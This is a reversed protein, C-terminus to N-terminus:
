GTQVGLEPTPLDTESRGPEKTLVPCESPGIISPEGAAEKHDCRWGTEGPRVAAPGVTSWTRRQPSGEQTGGGGTGGM